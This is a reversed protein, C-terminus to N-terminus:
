SCIIKVNLDAELKKMSRTLAPQSTHLKESAASLTGCQAFTVLQELLHIEIMIVESNLKSIAYKMATM